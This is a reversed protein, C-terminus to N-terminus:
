WGGFAAHAGVMIVWERARDRKRESQIWRKTERDRQDGSLPLSKNGGRGCLDRAHSRNHPIIEAAERLESRGLDEERM